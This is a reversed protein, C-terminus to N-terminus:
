LWDVADWTILENLPSEPNEDAIQDQQNQSVPTEKKPCRGTVCLLGRHQDTVLEGWMVQDWLQDAPM